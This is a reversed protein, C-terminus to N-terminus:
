DDDKDRVQVKRIAGSAFSNFSADFIKVSRNRKLVRALMIAGKGRIKNWHVQLTQMFKAQEVFKAIQQAGTDSIRNKSVNLVKLTQVLGSILKPKKEEDKKKKRAPSKKGGKKDKNGNNLEAAENLKFPDTNCILMIVDDSLNCKSVTLSQLSSFMHLKEYCKHSLHENQSIDLSILTKPTSDVIINFAEDYLMTNVLSLSHLNHINKVSKALSPAVRTNIHFEDLSYRFGQSIDRSDELNQQAQSEALKKFPLFHPALGDKHVQKLYEIVPSKSFDQFNEEAPAVSARSKPLSLRVHDDGEM